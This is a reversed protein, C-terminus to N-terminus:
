ESVSVGNVHVNGDHTLTASGSELYPTPLVSVPDNFVYIAFELNKNPVTFYIIEDEEIDGFWRYLETKKTSFPWKDKNNWTFDIGQNGEYNLDIATLKKLKSNL